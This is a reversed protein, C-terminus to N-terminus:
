LLPNVLNTLGLIGLLIIILSVLGLNKNFKKGGSYVGKSAGGFGLGFFLFLGGIV